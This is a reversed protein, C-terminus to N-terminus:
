SQSGVVNPCPWFPNVLVPENWFFFFRQCGANIYAIKPLKCGMKAILEEVVEKAKVKVGGPSVRGIEENAL